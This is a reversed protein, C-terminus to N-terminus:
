LSKYHNITIYLSKESTPPQGVGGFFIHFDVPIIVNWIYPFIFINWVVLWIQNRWPNELRSVFSSFWLHNVLHFLVRAIFVTYLTLSRYRSQLPVGITGGITGITGMEAGLRQHHLRSISQSKDEKTCEVPSRSMLFFGWLHEVSFTISCRFLISDKAPDGAVKWWSDECKKVLFIHRVDGSQNFSFM